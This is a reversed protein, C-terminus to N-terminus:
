GKLFAGYEEVVVIMLKTKWAATNAATRLWATLRKLAQHENSKRLQV